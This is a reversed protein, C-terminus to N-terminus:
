RKCTPKNNNFLTYNLMLDRRKTEYKVLSSYNPIIKLAVMKGGVDELYNNIRNKLLEANLDDPLMGRVHLTRLQLYKLDLKDVNTYYELTVQSFHRIMKVIVVIFVITFMTIMILHQVIVTNSSFDVDKYSAHFIKWDQVEYIQAFLKVGFYIGLLYLTLSIIKRQSYLYYYIETGCTPIWYEPDLERFILGFKTCFDVLSKPKYVASQLLTQFKYKGQPFSCYGPRLWLLYWLLFGVALSSIYILTPYYIFHTKTPPTEM